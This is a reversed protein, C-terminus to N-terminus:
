NRMKNQQANINQAGGNANRQQNANQNVMLTTQKELSQVQREMLSNQKQLEQIIPQNGKAIEQRHAERMQEIAEITRDIDAAAAQAKPSWKTEDMGSEWYTLDVRRDRLTRIGSDFAEEPNNAFDGVKTGIGVQSMGWDSWNSWTEAMFGKRNRELSKEVVEQVSAITKQDRGEPSFDKLLANVDERERADAIKQDYTVSKSEIYEKASEPRDNIAQYNRKFTEFTESGPTYFQENLAQFKADGKSEQLAYTRLAPNQQITEFQKLVDGPDKLQRMVRIAEFEVKDKGTLRANTEIEKLKARQEDVSIKADKAANSQDGPAFYAARRERRELEFKARSIDAREGEDIADKKALEEFRLERKQKEAENPNFIMGLTSFQNVGMTAAQEGNPDLVSYVSHLAMGARAAEVKDHTPNRLTAASAVTSLSKALKETDAVRNVAATSGILAMSQEPTIGVNQVLDAMATATGITASKDHRTLMAANEVVKKANEKGVIGTTEGIAETLKPADAYNARRAIEPVSEEAIKKIEVKSTGAINGVLRSQSTTLEKSTELSKALIAQYEKTTEIVAGTISQVSALSSVISKVSTVSSEFAQGALDGATKAESGVGKFSDKTKANADVVKQLSRLLKAEDGTLEVVVTSM